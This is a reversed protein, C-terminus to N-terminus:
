VPAAEVRQSPDLLAPWRRALAIALAALLAGGWLLLGGGALIDGTAILLAALLALERRIVLLAPLAFLLV